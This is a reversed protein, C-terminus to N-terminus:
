RHPVRDIYLADGFSLFRYGLTLATEYVTRWGAGSAAPGSALPGLAAAVLSILTTRPAHFNTLIADVARFAYGPTIFLASEGEGATITGDDAATELSRVVTTGVAVVRGGRRRTETHLRATEEPIRFRERHIVHDEVADVTMPRFTDLGVDLEVEAIGVGAAGLREVLRPTFHLGATPAAASGISKAFMTQSREPDDLTGHIYPPLPMEGVTPLLDEVDAGTTAITLPVLGDVPDGTVTAHIDGCDIEIGARMRRAPRVLAEWRVPDLRRLLLLEVSGGTDVRRGHLRAARVRTRNVVLLDGADLLEPLDAFRRDELTRAVLLRSQDRPEIAEQAIAAEPLVYDLEDTRM